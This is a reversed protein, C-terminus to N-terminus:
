WIFGNIEAKLIKTVLAPLTRSFAWRSSDAVIVLDNMVAVLLPRIIHLLACRHPHSVFVTGPAAGTDLNARPALWGGQEM